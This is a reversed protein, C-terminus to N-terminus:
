SDGPRLTGAAKVQALLEKRFEESGVCRGSQLPASEEGDDVARRLEMRREFHQLGATSDKAIGHEGQLRDM